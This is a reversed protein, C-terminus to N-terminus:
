CGESPHLDKLRDLVRSSVFREEVSGILIM